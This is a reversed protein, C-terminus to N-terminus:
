RATGEEALERQELKEADCVPCNPRACAALGERPWPWGSLRSRLWGFQRGEVKTQVAEEATPRKKQYISAMIMATTAGKLDFRDSM